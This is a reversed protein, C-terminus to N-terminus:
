NQLAVAVINAVVALGVFGVMIGSIVKGATDLTRHDEYGPPCAIMRWGIWFNVFPVLTWLLAWGSMGLNKVRQYAAFFSVVMMVLGAIFIVIVAAAGMGEGVGGSFAAFMVVFLIAYFVVTIALYTLFYRLRGYGPYHVPRGTGQAIQESALYPNKAVPALAAADSLLGSDALTKWDAMGERWVHTTAPDLQGAKALANIQEPTVPGEQQGDKTFYWQEMCTRIEDADPPDLLFWDVPHMPPMPPM